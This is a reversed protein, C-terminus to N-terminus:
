TYYQTTKNNETKTNTKKELLLRCVLHANTVPTCVHARGIKNGREVRHVRLQLRMDSPKPGPEVVAHEQNRPPAIRADAADDERAPGGVLHGLDGIGIREHRAPDRGELDHREGGAKGHRLDGPPQCSPQLDSSCVDSSWDSIRM